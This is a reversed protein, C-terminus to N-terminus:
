GRFLRVGGVHRRRDKVIFCADTEEICQWPTPFRRSGLLLLKRNPVDVLPDRAPKICFHLGTPFAGISLWGLMKSAVLVEFCLFGRAEM